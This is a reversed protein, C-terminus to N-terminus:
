SYDHGRLPVTMPVWATRSRAEALLVDVDANFLDVEGAIGLLLV